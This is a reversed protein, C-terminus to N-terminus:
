GKLPHTAGKLNADVADPDLAKWFLDQQGQWLDNEDDPGPEDPPTFLMLELFRAFNGDGETGQILRLIQWKHPMLHDRARQAGPFLEIVEGCLRCKVKM